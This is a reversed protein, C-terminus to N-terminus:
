RGHIVRYPQPMMGIIASARGFSKAIKKGGGLALDRFIVRNLPAVILAAILWCLGFILNLPVTHAKRLMAGLWGRTIALRRLESAACWHTRYLQAFYSLREEHATEHTVARLTRRIEFGMAYAKAFFENDEGGMLGLKEEFRLGARLLDVSFRVNGTYATKLSQGEHGKEDEKQVWFPIPGTYVPKNVGAVVEVDRYDLHCLQSLWKLDAVEDDDIFAVWDTGISLAAEVAANRAAAIGRKPQHVYHVPFRWCEDAFRAVTDMNNSELENDVIIISPLINEDIAQEMLSRLCRKLMIPRQYTCVCVAIRIINKETTM